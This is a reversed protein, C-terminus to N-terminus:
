SRPSGLSHSHFCPSDATSSLFFLRLPHAIRTASVLLQPHRLLSLFRRRCCPVPVGRERKGEPSLRPPRTGGVGCLVRSGGCSPQRGRTFGRRFFDTRYKVPSPRRM